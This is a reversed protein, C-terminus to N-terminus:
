KLFLQNMDASVSFQNFAGRVHYIARSIDIRLTKTRFMAGFSLGAGGSLQQLQLTSKTLHNYGVSVQFSRSLLLTGGWSLHRAVKGVTGISENPAYVSVDKWLRYATLFFRFPMHEPKFAMGLRADTPLSSGQGAAYDQLLFGVNNITLALTLDLTPHRYVGGMDLMVGTARLGAIGSSAVKLNGGLRFPAMQHTYNLVLTYASATFDGTSLGAANYGSFTGYNLYGVHVGWQGAQNIFRSYSLAAFKIDAFYPRYTLSVQQDLHRTNLAPNNLFVHSDNVGGSDPLTAAQVGGLATTPTSANLNLFDFTHDGGSQALAFGPLLVFLVLKILLKAVRSYCYGVVQNYSVYSHDAVQFLRLFCSQLLRLYCCQARQTEKHQQCLFCRDDQICIHPSGM